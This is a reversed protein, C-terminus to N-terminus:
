SCWLKGLRGHGHHGNACRWSTMPFSGRRKPPIVEAGYQSPEKPGVMIFKKSFEKSQPKEWLHRLNEGEERTMPLLFSGPASPSATM